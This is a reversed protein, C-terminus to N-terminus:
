RLPEMFSWGDQSMGKTQVLVRMEDGIGDPLILRQAAQREELIAISGELGHSEVEHSPTFLPHSTIGLGLLFRAQRTFALTSFGEQEGARILDSFNVHATLDQQGPRDLINRTVKHGSYAAVTGYRRIGPNFLQGEEFGYDFTVIMGRRISRSIERYMAEWQLSVDAFQGEKLSIQRSHFYDIFELAAPQESWSRDVGAENATEIVVLENLGTARQVLRAVPFADFLENCIALTPAAGGAIELSTTFEIGPHSLAVQKTRGISRDVGILRVTGAHNEPLGEAIGALLRGDGCGIDVISCVEDGCRALFEQTLLSLAYGFVPSIQPATVFDGDFGVPNGRKSYYGFDCDYLAREM